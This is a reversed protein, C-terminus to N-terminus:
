LRGQRELTMQRRMRELATLAKDRTPYTTGTLLQGTLQVYFVDNKPVVKDGGRPFPLDYEAAKIRDYCDPCRRALEMINADIDIFSQEQKFATFVPLPSKHNGGRAVMEAAIDDHRDRLQRVDFLGDAIFGEVSRGKEISGVFMHCEVHEGRLHKDCMLEVPVNWMRMNVGQIYGMATYACPAPQKIQFPRVVWSFWSRKFM